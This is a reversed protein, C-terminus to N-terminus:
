ITMRVQQSSPVFSLSVDGGHGGGSFSCCGVGGSQQGRDGAQTWEGVAVANNADDPYGGNLLMLRRELDEIRAQQSRMLDGCACGNSNISAHGRCCLCGGTQEEESAGYRVNGSTCAGGLRGDERRVANNGITSEGPVNNDHVRKTFRPRPIEGAIIGILAEQASHIVCLMGSSFAADDTPSCLPFSSLCFVCRRFVCLVNCYTDCTLRM